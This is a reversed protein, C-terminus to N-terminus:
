KNASGSEGAERDIAQQLLDQLEEIQERIMDATMDGQIWPNAKRIAMELKEVLAVPATELWKRLMQKSFLIAEGGKYLNWGTVSTEILAHREKGPDMKIQSNGGRTMTVDVRNKSQYETKQGENMVQIIFYQKGDPLMHKATEDTGWYDVYEVVVEDQLLGPAETM